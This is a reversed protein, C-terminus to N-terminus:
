SKHQAHLVRPSLHPAHLAKAPFRSPFSWKPSVPTFPLIINPHFHSTPKHVPDRQSLISVPPPCKHIRYHVKPNWLIRPIEQSASFRNAEWSRRQEKSNTWLWIASHLPSITSWGRHAPLTCSDNFYSFCFLISSPPFSSAVYSSSLFPPFLLLDISSFYLTM